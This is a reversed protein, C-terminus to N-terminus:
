VSFVAHSTSANDKQILVFYESGEAVFRVLFCGGAISTFKEAEFHGFFCIPASSLGKSLTSSLVYLIVATDISGKLKKTIPSMLDQIPAWLTIPEQM